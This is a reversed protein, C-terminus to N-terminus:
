GDREERPPVSELPPQVPYEPAAIERPSQDVPELAPTEEAPTAALDRLRRAAPLVRSELSGVAQNYANTARGLAGGVDAFYRLFTAVRRYLERGEATVQQADAALREERWGLEVARLLAVLTMPSAIAVRRGMADEILAPDAEVAAGFFSEGPIFLVILDIAEDLPEWYTKNALAQVHGRVQQAHREFAARRLDPTSAELAELYGTLPVKADVVIQRRRPLHVVMDPRRRRGESETTVQEIFDCHASMGALEAVRRLTLEGWRGRAQPTRMATALSGAQESLARVQAELSAYAGARAKEVERVHDEYRSLAEQLPRVSTDIEKQRQGLREEALTLFEANSRRLAESSLATFTDRLSAEAQELLRRQELLNKQEAALRTEAQARREQEAALDRRLGIVEQLRENLQRRREGELTELEKIRADLEGRRARARGDFHARAVLWAFVAGLVLGIAVLTPEPV